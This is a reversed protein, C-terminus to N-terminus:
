LSSAWGYVAEDREGRLEWDRREAAWTRGIEGVRRIRHEPRSLLSEFQVVWAEWMQSANGWWSMHRGFAAHVVEEPTYGADLALKAKEAWDGSLDPVTDLRGRGERSNGRLPALHQRNPRPERLYDRYIALDDGILKAILGEDSFSEPLSQLLVQRGDADLSDLAEATVHNWEVRSRATASTHALLWELALAPDSKLIAGLGNRHEPCRVIAARWAPRLPERVQGAPDAQWEGAAAAGAVTDDEHRLLRILTSEPVQKRLCACWVVESLGELRVLAAELLGEPPSPMALTVEIIKGRWAPQDLRSIALSTWLPADEAAVRRLFPEALNALLDVELVSRVWTGPERVLTALEHCLTPTLDPWMLGAVRAQEGFWEIRRLVTTPDQTAWEGALPGVAAARREGLDRWGEDSRDEKPFLTEFHPDLGIALGLGLDDAIQSAAHLVGPCGEALAILDSIMQSATSRMARKVEPPIKGGSALSPDPYAWLRIAQLVPDWSRLDTPRILARCEDWLRGIEDLGEPPLLGWMFTLTRGAGPDISDRKFEPSLILPLCDLGISPDGGSAMWVRVAGLLGRRRLLAEGCGPEVDKVWDEIQRLPHRPYAPLPRRDGTAARLLHPIVLDPAWRLAPAAIEIVFEPHRGLALHTEERGLGAFQAWARESGARELAGMILGTPVEAGYASAGILTDVVGAEGPLNELLPQLPLSTAGCFFVDRVLAYRLAPPRVSLCSGGSDMLVGGAALRSINSRLQAIPLGLARAVVGVETGAHGGVAFAALIEIALAGVLPEFSAHVSRKLANGLALDRVGGQLCLYVLTVALGPRGEAQDVIERVLEVPSHIGSARIVEVIEDRTLLGLERIQGPGLNLSEAVLPADGPWSSALLAFDAGAESRFRRLEVLLDRRVHADDLILLPPRRARYAEAIRGPDDSAVFLGRGELALKRLLFTKGSGPQGVLLRDGPADRLWALDADRGIPPLDILPRQTRPELSLAPPDGALNLLERCWAPSEYLRDAIAAQDYIQVLVFGLEEARKELNRRRLATLEQSTALIAKHRSGGGAKYAELNRHLNGIVDTGTTTVLPYATGEGDAIAGDMGADSGGRIPVLTPHERRLLDAACHEFLDPDLPGGLRELIQQYLPDRKM